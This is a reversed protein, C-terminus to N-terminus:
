ALKEICRLNLFAVSGGSYTSCQALSTVSLRAVTSLDISVSFSNVYQSARTNEFSLGDSRVFLHGAIQTGSGGTSSVGVWSSMDFSYRLGQTVSSAKYFQLAIILSGDAREFKITTPNQCNSGYGIFAGITFKFGVPSKEIITTKSTGLFGMTATPRRDVNTHAFSITKEYWSPQPINAPDYSAYSNSTAGYGVFNMIWWGIPEEYTKVKFCETFVERESLKASLMYYYTLGKVTTLDEYQYVGGIIEALLPPLNTSTFASDSRYIRVSESVVNENDWNIKIKVSM